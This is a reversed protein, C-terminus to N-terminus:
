VFWEPELRRTNDKVFKWGAVKYLFGGLKRADKPCVHICRCCTICIFSDTLKPNEKPIAGAPCEAACTGCLTCKDSDSKPHLPVGVPKKYPRNGKVKDFCLRNDGQIADKVIRAFEEIKLEDDADPRNTAVKPFICHDGIFAGAAVVDFGQRRAIDCLELLADDYDRNGYVVMVIAKQGNGKVSLFREAAISPIRGAYVPAALLVIDELSEIDIDTPEVTVNHVREAVDLKKSFIKVIEETTGSPSFIISRLM